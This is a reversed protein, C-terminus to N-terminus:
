CYFLILLKSNQPKSKLLIKVAKWFKSISVVFVELGLQRFLSKKLMEKHNLIFMSVFYPDIIIEDEKRWIYSGLLEIEAKGEPKIMKSLQLLEEMNHEDM